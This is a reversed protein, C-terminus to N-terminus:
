EERRCHCHAQDDQEVDVSQQHKAVLINPAIAFTFSLKGKKAWHKLVRDLCTVVNKAGTKLCMEFAGARKTPPRPPRSSQRASRCSNSKPKLSPKQKHVARTMIKRQKEEENAGGVAPKQEAVAPKPKAAKPKSTIVPRQSLWILPQSMTVAWSM